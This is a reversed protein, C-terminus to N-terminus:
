SGVSWRKVLEYGGLALCSGPVAVFLRPALGKYFGRFFGEERYIARALTTITITNTTAAPRMQSFQNSYHTAVVRSHPSSNASQRLLSISTTYPPSGSVSSSPLSTSEYTQIRTRIVDFPNSVICSSFGALGAALGNVIGEMMGNKHFRHFDHFVPLKEMMAVARWSMRKYAEYSSWYVASSPAYALVHPVYGRYFGRIGHRRFISRIVDLTSSYQYESHFFSFKPQTQLRQSVMDSPVYFIAAVMEATAGAFSHALFEEIISTKPLGYNELKCALSKGYLHHTFEYTSYYSAQGPFSGVVAPFIGTFLKRPGENKMIRKLMRFIGSNSTVRDAQMRTKVVELPYLLTDVTFIFLSGYIAYATTNLEEWRISSPKQTSRDSTSINQLFNESAVSITSSNRSTEDSNDPSIM